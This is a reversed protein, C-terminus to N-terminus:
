HPLFEKTQGPGAMGIGQPQDACCITEGALLNQISPSGISQCEKEGTSYRQERPLLKRSFFTSIAPQDETVGENWVPVEEQEEELIDEAWFSTIVPANKQLMVIHFIRHCKWKDYM